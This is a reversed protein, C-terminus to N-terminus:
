TKKSINMKKGKSSHFLNTMAHYLSINHINNKTLILKFNIDTILPRWQEKLAVCVSIYNKKKRYTFQISNNIKSLRELSIECFKEMVDLSSEYLTGAIHVDNIKIFKNIETLVHTMSKRTEYKSFCIQLIYNYFDFHRLSHRRYKRLFKSAMKFFEETNKLVHSFKKGQDCVYEHFNYSSIMFLLVMGYSWVDIRHDYKFILEYNSNTNKEVSIVHFDGSINMELEPSRHSATVIEYDPKHDAESAYKGFGFDCLIADTITGNIVNVLINSEKIDRHLVNRSHAFAIASGINNLVLFIESDSFNHLSSLSANYYKMEAQATFIQSQLLIGKELDFDNDQLINLQRYTIIAPHRIFKTVVIERIWDLGAVAFSKYATNLDTSYVMGYSGSGLIYRDFPGLQPIRVNHKKKKM